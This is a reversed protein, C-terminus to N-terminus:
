QQAAAPWEYVCEALLGFGKMVSGTKVEYIQRERVTRCMGM